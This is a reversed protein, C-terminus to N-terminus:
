GVTSTTAKWLLMLSSNGLSSTREKFVELIFTDKLSELDVTRELVISARKYHDIIAMSADDNRFSDSSRRPRKSSKKAVSKQRPSM